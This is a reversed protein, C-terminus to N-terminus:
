KSGRFSCMCRNSNLVESLSSAGGPCRRRFKEAFTQVPFVQLAVAINVRGRFEEKEGVASFEFLKKYGGM